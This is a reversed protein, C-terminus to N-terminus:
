PSGAPRLRSASTRGVSRAKSGSPKRWRQEKGPSPARGRTSHAATTRALEWNDRERPWGSPGAVPLQGWLGGRAPNTTHQPGTLGPHRPPRHAGQLARHRYGSPVGPAAEAPRHAEDARTAHSPRAQAGQSATHSPHDATSPARDAGGALRYDAITAAKDPM